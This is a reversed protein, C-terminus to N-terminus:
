ADTTGAKVLNKLTQIQDFTHRERLYLFISNNHILPDDDQSVYGQSALVEWDATGPIPSYECLNALLGLAHVYHITAATEELDQGPLGVFLYM